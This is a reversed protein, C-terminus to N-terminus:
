VVELESKLWFNQDSRSLFSEELNFIDLKHCTKVSMSILISM